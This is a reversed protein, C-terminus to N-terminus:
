KPTKTMTKEIEKFLSVAHEDCASITKSTVQKRTERERVRLEIYATAPNECFRCAGRSNNGETRIDELSAM